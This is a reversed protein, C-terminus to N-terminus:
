KMIVMRKIQHFSPTSLQYFYVGSSVREGQSNRGDWYATVSLVANAVDDPSVTFRFEESAVEGTPDTVTVELTDGVQVVSRRALDATAAAFYGNRVRDKMITNTRANRVSVLYGDFARNGELQGSLVFAWADNGSTAGPADPTWGVFNQNVEDLTIVMTAGVLESLYRANIPRLPQLPVSLMNLSKSLTTFFIGTVNQGSENLAPKAIFGHRSGDMTDYYGVIGGETDIDRAVTTVSGPVRLETPESNPRLVYSREVDNVEKARFLIVGADSIANM